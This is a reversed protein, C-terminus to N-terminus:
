GLWEMANEGMARDPLPPLRFAHGGNTRIGVPADTGFLVREPGVAALMRRVTGDSVLAPLAVDFRIRPLRWLREFHPVGAHALVLRLKPCRDLVTEVDEAPGV